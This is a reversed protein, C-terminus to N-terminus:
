RTAVRELDSITGVYICHKGAWYPYPEVLVPEFTVHKSALWAKVAREPSSVLGRELIIVYRRQSFNLSEIWGYCRRANEYGNLAFVEVVGRWARLGEGNEAVPVSEVRAARCNYKADIASLLLTLNNITRSM